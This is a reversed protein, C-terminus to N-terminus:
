RSEADQQASQCHNQRGPTEEPRRDGGINHALKWLDGSFKVGIIRFRQRRNIATLTVYLVIGAQFIGTALVTEGALFAVLEKVHVVRELIIVGFQHWAAPTAMTLRMPFFLGGAGVAMFVRMRRLAGRSEILERRDASIAVGCRCLLQGAEGAGMGLLAAVGAMMILVPVDGSAEFTMGPVQRRLAGFGTRDAVLIYMFRQLDCQRIVCVGRGACNTVVRNVALPRGRRALM